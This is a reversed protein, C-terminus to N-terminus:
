EPGRTAAVLERFRERATTVDHFVGDTPPLPHEALFRDVDALLQECLRGLDVTGLDTNGQRITTGTKSRIFLLIFSSDAGVFEYRRNDGTLLSSIGNMLDVLALYVMMGADPQRGKSSVSSTTTTVVLDGLEFGSPPEGERREFTFSIDTM